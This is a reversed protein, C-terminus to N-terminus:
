RNLEEAMSDMDALLGPILDVPTDVRFMVTVGDELLYRVRAWSARQPVGAMGPLAEVAADWQPSAQRYPAIMGLLSSRLPLLGAAEVQLAQNEASLLWRVFLWAALQREPTAALVAYSSGYAVVADRDVGPFPLLTWADANGARDFANAVLPLEVLDASIFLAQRSAFAEYPLDATTLWACNDDYLGKIFQLAALNQDSRFRYDPGDEVGGGFALLWSYSTQWHSDVIWGGLGDNQLNQDTRFSANAACAQQRFEDPTSPPSDFGLEQAWAQNYYLYRASRQAPLGLLRGDFRDQDRFVAPIDELDELPFGWVQDAAYANLDAVRGAQDWALIQEPAAAVLDPASGASAAAEVAEALSVPDGSGREVIQIGWENVANFLEVQNAFAPYAAGTFTHWVQIQLGRLGAPDVSIAPPTTPTVTPAPTDSPLPASPDRTPTPSGGGPTCAALLLAPILLLCLCRLLSARM